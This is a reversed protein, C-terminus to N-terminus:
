LWQTIGIYVGYIVLAAVTMVIFVQGVMIAAAKPLDKIDRVRTGKYVLCIVIVLPILLLLWYRDMGPYIATLPDILPTFALMRM